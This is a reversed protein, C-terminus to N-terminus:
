WIYAELIHDDATIATVQPISWFPWLLSYMRLALVTNMGSTFLIVCPFEVGVIMYVSICIRMYLMGMYLSVTVSLWGFGCPFLAWRLPWQKATKQIIAGPAVIALVIVVVDLIYLCLICDVTYIDTEVSADM